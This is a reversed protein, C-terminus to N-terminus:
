IWSQFWMWQRFSNAPIKFGALVPFFYLFLICATGLFIWKGIQLKQARFPKWQFFVYALAFSLMMGAPYYYYYFSIKRPILSWCFYFASYFFVILFGQRSQRRIGDVLCPILALLGIWMIIPNGLLLVGRVYNPDGLEAEFAYWIPRLMLPWGTWDSMYPHHTIVRLQGDFMRFQMDWWDLPSHTLGDQLFLYPIFTSFYCVAPILGFSLGFELWSIDRWLHKPQWSQETPSKSQFHTQQILRIGVFLIVCAGWAVVGFWKCAITYGLLAGTWRFLTSSKWRKQAPLWTACFAVLAWILFAYMFTDLMGIRSQVYLLQNALTLGVTWLAAEQTQFLVLALFYVGVCSLSGFLTSM